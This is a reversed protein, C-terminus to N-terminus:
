TEQIHEIIPKEPRFQGLQLIPANSYAPSSEVSESWVLRKKRPM